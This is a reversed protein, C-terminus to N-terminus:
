LTLDDTSRPSRRSLSIERHLKQSLQPLHRIGGGGLQQRLEPLSDGSFHHFHFGRRLSGSCLRNLFSILPQAVAFVDDTVTRGPARERTVFLAVDDHAPEQQRVADDAWQGDPGLGIPRPEGGM